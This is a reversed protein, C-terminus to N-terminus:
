LFSTNQSLYAENSVIVEDYEGIDYLDRSKLHIPISWGQEKEDNVYYVM